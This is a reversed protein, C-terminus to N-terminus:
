AGHAAHQDAADAARSRGPLAARDVPLRRPVARDAFPGDGQATNVLVLVTLLAVAVSGGRGGLLLAVIAVFFLPIYTLAYAVGLSSRV